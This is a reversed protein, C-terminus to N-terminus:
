GSLKRRKRPRKIPANPEDTRGLAGLALNQELQPIQRRLRGVCDCNTCRMKTADETACFHDGCMGHFGCRCEGLPAMDECKSCWLFNGRAYKTAFDWAFQPLDKFVSEFDAQRLLDEAFWQSRYVVWKRLSDDDNPTTTYAMDIASVLDAISFNRSRLEIVFNEASMARLAPIDFRTAMAYVEAHVEFDFKQNLIRDDPVAKSSAKDLIRSLSEAFNVVDYNGHYLYQLMRAVMFPDQDELNV